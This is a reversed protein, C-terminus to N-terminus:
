LPAPQLPVAAEKRRVRTEVQNVLIPILLAFLISFTALRPMGVLQGGPAEHLLKTSLFAGSSSSVHQMASQFSMFRAREQPKPVRSSLTTVSVNRTSMAMMFGAFIILPPLAPPFMVYGGYVIIVLFFTGVCTVAFASFRDVMRGALRMTFFSVTGGAMYLFGLNERPYSLNMQFYASLNPILMFGGFMALGVTVFSFLVETRMLNKVSQFSTVIARDKLHGTMPPLLYIALVTIALCMGGVAFFPMRWGGIRALELGAPVGFISALSFAGMVAGMAKGRREIAVTDAIIALSLSTAPGGFAGALARALILTTMDNAFAGAFTGIALGLMACFLAKRRDFRDLFFSGVIGTIAASATYIGGIIGLNSNPIGLAAAFDPGLPMVMMFDVVNIFQIAGILRIITRESHTKETV